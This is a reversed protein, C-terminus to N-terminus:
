DMFHHGTSRKAPTLFQKLFPDSGPAPAPDGASPCPRRVRGRSPGFIELVAGCPSRRDSGLARDPSRAWARHQTERVNGGAGPNGQPPNKMNNMRLMMQTTAATAAGTARPSSEIVLGSTDSFAHGTSITSIATGFAGFVTAAM